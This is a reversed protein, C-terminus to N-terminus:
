ASTSATVHNPQDASYALKLDNVPMSMTQWMYESSSDLSLQQTLATNWDNWIFHWQLVLVGNVIHSFRESEVYVLIITGQM